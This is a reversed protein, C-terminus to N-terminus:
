QPSIATLKRILTRDNKRTNKSIFFTQPFSRMKKTMFIYAPTRKRVASFFTFLTRHTKSTNKALHPAHHSAHELMYTCIFCSLALTWAPATYYFMAFKVWLGNASGINL